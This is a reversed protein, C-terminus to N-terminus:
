CQLVCATCLPVKNDTRVRKVAVFKRLQVHYGKYVQAADDCCMHYLRVGEAAGPIMCVLVADNGHAAAATQAAAM